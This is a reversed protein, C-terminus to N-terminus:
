KVTVTMLMKPHIECRVSFVGSLPFKVDLSKGPQQEDSTFNLGPGTVHVQHLFSDANIFRVSDGHSITVESVAFARAIQRVDVIQTAQAVALPVAFGALLWVSPRARM